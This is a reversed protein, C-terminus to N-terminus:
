LFIALAVFIVAVFLLALSVRGWLREAAYGSFPMHGSAHDAAMISALVAVGALVGFILNPDM